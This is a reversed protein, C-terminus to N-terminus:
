KEAVLRGLVEAQPRYTSFTLIGFRCYGRPQVLRTGVRRSRPACVSSRPTTGPRLRSPAWLRRRSKPVCRLAAVRLFDRGAAEINRPPLALAGVAPTSVPSGSHAVRRIAASHSAIASRIGLPSRSSNCQAYTAPRAIFRPLKRLKVSFPECILANACSTLNSNV